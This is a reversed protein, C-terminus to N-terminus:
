DGQDGPLAEQFLACLHFPRSSAGQPLSIPKYLAMSSPPPASHPILSLIYTPSAKFAMRPLKSHKRNTFAHSKLTKLLWHHYYGSVLYRSRATYYVLHKM